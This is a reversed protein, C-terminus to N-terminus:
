YDVILVFFKIFVVVAAIVNTLTDGFTILILYCPNSCLMSNLFLHFPVEEKSASMRGYHINYLITDNFLVQLLLLGRMLYSWRICDGCCHEYVM